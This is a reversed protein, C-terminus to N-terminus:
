TKQGSGALFDTMGAKAPIVFFIQNDLIVSEPFAGGRVTM